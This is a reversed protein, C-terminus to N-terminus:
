EGASGAAHEKVLDDFVDDPAPQFGTIGYTECIAAGEESACFDLSARRIADIEATSAGGELYFIGTNPIERSTFVTELSDAFPLSPLGSYETADLIVADVEGGSLKRLSGLARSYRADISEGLDLQGGLVITEVFFPEALPSGLLTGGTLDTLSQVSDKRAVIYFQHTDRGEILIQSIPELGLGERHSLYFGPTTLLFSPRNAAIHALAEAERNFYYAATSGSKWGARVAMEEMLRAVQAQAEESPNPGGPRVVVLDRSEAAAAASLALVALIGAIGRFVSEVRRM